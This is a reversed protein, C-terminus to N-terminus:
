GSFYVTAKVVFFRKGDFFLRKASVSQRGQKGCNIELTKKEAEIKLCYDGLGNIIRSYKKELFDKASFSGGVWETLAKSNQESKISVELLDQVVEYEYLSAYSPATNHLAAFGTLAVAIALSVLAEFSFVIAKM